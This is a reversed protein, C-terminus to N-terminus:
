AAGDGAPTTIDVCGQSPQDHPALRAFARGTVRSRRPALNRSARRHATCGAKALPRRGRAPSRGTLASLTVCRRRRSADHHGRIGALTPRAPGVKRLGARYRPQAAPRSKPKGPSAGHLWGECPSAGACPQSRLVCESARLTAVRRRVSTWLDRRPNTAVSGVLRAFARRTLLLLRFPHDQSARHDTTWGAKALPHRGACPQSQDACEFDRLTPEPQHRSTWAARRPNTTRPWGQSPGGPLATAGRPSIDAQGAIRRAALRRM